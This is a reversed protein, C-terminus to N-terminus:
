KSGAVPCRKSYVDSTCTGHRVFRDTLVRLSSALGFMGGDEGFTTGANLIGLYGEMVRRGHNGAGSLMWGETVVEPVYELYVDLFRVADIRIEPFIHTQASTTFLLLVPSHPALDDQEVFLYTFRVCFLFAM